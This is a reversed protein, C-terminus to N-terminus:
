KPLDAPPFVRESVLQMEVNQLVNKVFDEKSLLKHYVKLRHGNVVLSTQKEDITKIRVAGNDYVIDVEYPGMWRTSLKGKFIKFRSDYLLAWDSPQFSKQKIYKNHWKTRQEQILTTRQLADERIEDLENL